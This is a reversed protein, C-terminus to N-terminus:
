VVDAGAPHPQPSKGLVEAVLYLLKEATYPKPLFAAAREQLIEDVKDDPARGSTAIVKIQPHIKQLVRFTSLGDLHPMVMDLLVVRIDREHASYLAVAEPGDCATLVRYGSSELMERLTERLLVEDDAILIWEGNGCPPVPVTKSVALEATSPAAPLYITFQTGQKPKSEVDIFGGHGKIIGQVTSLGLGTGQGIDKTTFFPDFIRDLVAIPIGTGTDTVTLRLYPGPHANLRVSAWIKDLQLNEAVIQLRGGRPMADRANVCLNMLVQHLQTTDGTVPWLGDPITAEITISSPLTEQMLRVIEKLLPAPSLAVRAGKSGRAFTLVQKIMESGRVINRRMVELRRLSKEDKWERQLMNISVLIPALINNLDHAIGGALTGLSELRQARLLQGEIQRQETIDTFMALAGLYQGQESFIPTENARVWIERGGRHQMRYELQERVGQQRAKLKAEGASVDEPFTFELPSKSMMETVTYGLLAAGRPNIFETQHNANILWVGEDAIEMIRRYQAESERLAREARKHEIIETQLAENTTTLQATRENVQLQLTEETQRLKALARLRQGNLSSILVALLAFVLLQILETLGTEFSRTPQLFLYDVVAVSLGTALLGPKLGGFWASLMVATTFLFFPNQQLPPVVLLLLLMLAVSLVALAYGTWGVRGARNAWSFRVYQEM